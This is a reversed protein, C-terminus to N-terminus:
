SAWPCTILATGDLGPIDTEQRAQRLVSGPCGSMAVDTSALCSPNSIGASTLFARPPSLYSGWLAAQDMM